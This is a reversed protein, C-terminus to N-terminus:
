RRSVSPGFWRPHCSAQLFSGRTPHAPTRCGAAMPRAPRSDSPCDGHAASMGVIASIDAGAANHTSCEGGYGLERLSRAAQEFDGDHELLTYVAFPRYGTRPEFPAANSSFVFFVRGESCEKLTASWGGERSEKGPRRWYENQGGKVLVWGADRLVARVDGRSNFDDGPRNANHPATTCMHSNDASMAGYRGSHPPATCMHSNDASMAGYHGSHPPIGCMHSNDAVPQPGDVVPPLYENLEWAAQLLVDREAATLIPLEALDGQILEYGATPACLILGGEGRTEILTVLGDATQRQALKISGCVPRECRYLVHWGGSPTSEIVLRNLLKAPVAKCWADFSEGGADFDLAELHGSVEGCLLCLADHDNAL